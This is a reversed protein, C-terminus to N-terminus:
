MAACVSPAKTPETRMHSCKKDCQFGVSSGMRLSLQKQLWGAMGLLALFKTQSTIAVVRKTKTPAQMIVRWFRGGPNAGNRMAANTQPRMRARAPVVPELMFGARSRPDRIAGATNGM